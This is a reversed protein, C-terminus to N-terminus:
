PLPARFTGDGRGLLITVTNGTSEQLENLGQDAIALDPRGDGNLDTSILTAAGREIPLTLPAQLTGDTRGLLVSLFSDDFIGTELHFGGRNLSLLDPQGDGNFDGSLLSSPNQGVLIPHPPLVGPSFETTLTYTGVGRNLSEVTLCYTGADLHQAIIDDPQT